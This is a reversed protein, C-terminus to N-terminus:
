PTPVKTLLPLAEFSNTKYYSSSIASAFASMAAESSEIAWADQRHLGADWLRVNFWVVAKIGPFNNPLQTTYANAIWSAKSGGDEISATEAIMIPKTPALTLLHSYTPGFITQFSLWGGNWGGAGFNYGDMATWDVYADGPYLRDIKSFDYGSPESNPCWVWTVNTAGHAAVIDHVHRWAAVFIGPNSADEKGWDMWDGNMEQDWRLFFPKGWAKVDDAWQAWNADYKGAATDALTTGKSNMTIMPIAGRQTVKDAVAVNFRQTQPASGMYHVISVAKRTDAEYRNWTRCDTMCDWPTDTWTGGYYYSFTKVGEIFSGWYISDSRPVPPPAPTPKPTPTATPTPKPNVVPLYVGASISSPRSPMHVLSVGFAGLLLALVFRRLARGNV